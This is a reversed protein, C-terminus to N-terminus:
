IRIHWTSPPSPRPKGELEHGHVPRPWEPRVEPKTRQTPSDICLPSQPHEFLWRRASVNVVGPPGFAQFLCVVMYETITAMLVLDELEAIEYVFIDKHMENPLARGLRTETRKEHNDPDFFVVRGVLKSDILLLANPLKSNVGICHHAFKDRQRTLHVSANRVARYLEYDADNLAARAAARIADHRVNDTRIARLMEYAVDYDAKLFRAAMCTWFMDCNTSRGVVLNVYEMLPHGSYVDPDFATHDKDDDLKYHTVPKPM